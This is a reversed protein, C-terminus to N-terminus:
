VFFLTIEKERFQGQRRNIPEYRYSMDGGTSDRAKLYKNNSMNILKTKRGILNLDYM